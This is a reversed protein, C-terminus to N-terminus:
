AMGRTDTEAAVGASAAVEKFVGHENLFLRNPLGAKMGVFLDLDGDGDVDAWAGPQGGSVGFVDPQISQFRPGASALQGAGRSVAAGSTALWAAVALVSAAVGSWRVLHREM